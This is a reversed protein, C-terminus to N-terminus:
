GSRARVPADTARQAPSARRAAPLSSATGRSRADGRALVLPRGAQDGPGLGRDGRALELLREATELAGPQEGLPPLGGQGEAPQQRARGRPRLEPADLLREGEELARSIEDLAIGEGLDIARVDEEVHALAAVPQRRDRGGDREERLREVQHAM